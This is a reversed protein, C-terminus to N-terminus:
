WLISSKAASVDLLNSTASASASATLTTTVYDLASLFIRGWLACVVLLDNRWCALLSGPACVRDIRYHVPNMIKNELLFRDFAKEYGIRVVTKTAGSKKYRKGSDRLLPSGPHASKYEATQAALGEAHAKEILLALELEAIRAQQEAIRNNQVATVALLGMASTNASDARKNAVNAAAHNQILGRTLSARSTDQDFM